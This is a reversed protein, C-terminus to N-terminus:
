IDHYSKKMKNQYYPKIQTESIANRLVKIVPGTIPEGKYQIEMDRTGKSLSTNNHADKAREDMLINLNTELNNKCSCQSGQHGTM